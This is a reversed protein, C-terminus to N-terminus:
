WILLLLYTLPLELELLLYILLLSMSKLVNFIDAAFIIGDKFMLACITTGTKKLKQTPVLNKEQFLLNREVNTFDFGKNELIETYM